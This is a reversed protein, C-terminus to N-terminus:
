IEIVSINNPYITELYESAFSTFIFEQSETEFIRVPVQATIPSSYDAVETVPTKGANYAALSSYTLIAIQTPILEDKVAVVNSYFESLICIAGSPIEIGNTLQVEENIKIAKM